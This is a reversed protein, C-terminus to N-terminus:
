RMMSTLMEFMNQTTTIVRASASYANELVIMLSLEEDLNVGSVSAVKAELNDALVQRSM